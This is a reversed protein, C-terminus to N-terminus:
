KPLSEVREMTAYSRRKPPKTTSVAKIGLKANLVDLYASPDDIALQKLRLYEKKTTKTVDQNPIEIKGNCPRMGLFQFEYHHKTDYVELILGPLGYFKWPGDSIPIDPAFGAEYTRGGCTCVAKQCAYNDITKQEETINWSFHPLSETYRSSTPLSEVFELQNKEFDKLVYYSVTIKGYRAKISDNIARLEEIGNANRELSDKEFNAQSYFLSGNENHRLVMMANVSRKTLTDVQYTLRYICEIYAKNDAARGQLLCALCLIITLTVKM